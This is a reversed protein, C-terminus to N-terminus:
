RPYFELVEALKNGNKDNWQVKLRTKESKRSIGGRRPPLLSNSESEEVGNVRHDQVKPPDTAGITSSKYGNVLKADTDMFFFFDIIRLVSSGFEEGILESSFLAFCLDRIWFESLKRFEDSVWNM